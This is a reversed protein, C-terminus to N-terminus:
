SVIDVVIANGLGALHSQILPRKNEIADKHYPNAKQGPHDLVFPIPHPLGPWWLAQKSRPFIDHARVGLRVYKGWAVGEIIHWELKRVQKKQISQWLRKTKKPANQRVAHHILSVLPTLRNEILTEKPKTLGRILRKFGFFKVSM